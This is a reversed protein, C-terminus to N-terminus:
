PLAANNTHQQISQFLSNFLYLADRLAKESRNLYAITKSLFSIAM